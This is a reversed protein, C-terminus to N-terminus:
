GDLIRLRDEEKEARFSEVGKVRIEFSGGAQKGGGNIQTNWGQRGKDGLVGFEM